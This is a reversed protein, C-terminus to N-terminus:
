WAIFDVRLGHKLNSFRTPGLNRLDRDNRMRETKKALIKYNVIIKYIDRRRTVNYILDRM